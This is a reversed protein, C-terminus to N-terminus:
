DITLLPQGADVAQQPAVHIKRVTGAKHATVVQKMKMAEMILVQQGADVRDGEKVNIEVIMGGMPALKDNEGAAAPAAAPAAAVAAPAAGGAAPQHAISSLGPSPYFTSDDDTVDEVVVDYVKGEVTIKLHRMRAM